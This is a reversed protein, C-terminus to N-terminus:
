ETTISIWLIIVRKKGGRSIECRSISNKSGSDTLLTTITCINHCTKNVTLCEEMRSVFSIAHLFIGRSSASAVLWLGFKNNNNSNNHIVQLLITTM